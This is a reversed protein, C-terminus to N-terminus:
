KKAGLRLVPGHGKGDIILGNHFLLFDAQWAPDVQAGSGSQFPWAVFVVPVRIPAPANERSFDVSFNLHLIFCSAM